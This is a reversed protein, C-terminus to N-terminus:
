APETETKERILQVTQWVGPAFIMEVSGNRSIMLNGDKIIVALVDDGLSMYDKIFGEKKGTSGLVIILSIKRTKINM